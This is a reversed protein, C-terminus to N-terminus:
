SRPFGSDDLFVTLAGCFFWPPRCPRNIPSVVKAKTTESPAAGILHHKISTQFALLNWGCCSPRLAIKVSQGPHLCSRLASRLHSPGQTLSTTYPSYLLVAFGGGGPFGGHSVSLNSISGEPTNFEPHTHKWGRASGGFDPSEGLNELVIIVIGSLAKGATPHFESQWFM